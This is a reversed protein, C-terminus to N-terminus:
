EEPIYYFASTDPKAPLTSVVIHKGVGLTSLKNNVWVTTAIQSDNSDSSPNITYVKSGSSTTSYKPTSVKLPFEWGKDTNNRITLQINRSGDTNWVQEFYSPNSGTKGSFGISDYEVAERSTDTVSSASSKRFINSTFTKTGNITQNGSLGVKNNLQSQIGSTVGDLYGLETSTVSSVAVKGNSDSIGTITNQKTNLKDNVAKSSPYKTTSTDITQSLNASTQKANLQSQIGSTVGDLYGLETSTVASVAVKGSGDSILARNATLNNSTITTAGGTITNQKTNLKDNVWKATTVENNSANTNTDPIRVNSNGNEDQEIFISTSTEYNPHRVYLSARVKGETDYGTRLTTIFKDAEDSDQILPIEVYESPKSYNAVSRKITTNFKNEGLFKNNENLKAYEGKAQIGLDDLSKNGSLEVSNIQPKNTLDTYHQNM